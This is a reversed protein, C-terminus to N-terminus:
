CQEIHRKQATSDNKELRSALNKEWAKLRDEGITASLIVKLVPAVFGRFIWPTARSRFVAIDIGMYIILGCVVSPLTYNQLVWIPDANPSVQIAFGGGRLALLGLGILFAGSALESLTPIYRAWNDFRKPKPEEKLGAAIAWDRDTKMSMKSLITM